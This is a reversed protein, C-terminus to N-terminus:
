QWAGYWAGGEAPDGYKTTSDSGDEWSAGYWSTGYWSTGYWSTGYWSTGTPTVGDDVWQTDYWSTGTWDTGTYEEADFMRGNATENGDTLCPKMPDLVREVQDVPTCPRTTQVDGRSGQLTGAGTSWAVGVNAEGPATLHAARHAQVMGAGVALPDLLGVKTATAKLAYKVRNPKWEENKDLVLAVVGSVVAASMSTGSGRRYATGALAGGGPGVTTEVHSGPARLSVVRSGPATVDPKPLGDAPTPGRSSFNPVRDDSTAPTERDDVAGATIVFPDDGPKSTTGPKGTTPSIRGLNGAAVVVAIDAQWVKEVAYNLPDDMYSQTSNTGLSLNLVDIELKDKFTVVYQLAALVKSVDSSGDGGAIKISVIRAEPAVGTYLGKSSAGNGAILGALFTGHGYEDSCDDDGKADVSGSFNACADDVDAEDVPDPVTTVVRGALDAVNSVGTDVLAITVGKGKIGEAWLLDAQVERAFVSNLTSLNTSTTAQVYVPADPTVARVGPAAGLRAVAGAPVDAAVGDVIALDYTVSGGVAAVARAAAEPDDPEGQVIVSVLGSLAPAGEASPATAAILAALLGAALLGKSARM